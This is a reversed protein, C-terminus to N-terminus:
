QLTAIELPIWCHPPFKKLTSDDTTEKIFEIPAHSKLRLICNCVDCVHLSKEGDVRLNLKNKYEIQRIVTLAVAGTVVEQIPKIVNKPCKTGSLRGTCVDARSQAQSPSVPHGGEGLWSTRLDWFRKADKISIKSM